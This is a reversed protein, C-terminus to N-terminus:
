RYGKARASAEHVAKRTEKSAAALGIPKVIKLEKRVADENWTHMTRGSTESTTSGVPKVRRRKLWQRWKALVKERDDGDVKDGGLKAVQELTILM